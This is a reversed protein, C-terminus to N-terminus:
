LEREREGSENFIHLFKKKLDEIERRQSVMMVSLYIDFIM